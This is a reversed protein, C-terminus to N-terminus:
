GVMMRMGTASNAKAMMRGKLNLSHNTNNIPIIVGRYMNTDSKYRFSLIGTNRVMSGLKCKLTGMLCVSTHTHIFNAVMRATNSMLKCNQLSCFLLITMWNLFFQALMNTINTMMNGMGNTNLFPLKSDATSQTTGSEAKM